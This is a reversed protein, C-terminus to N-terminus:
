HKNLPSSLDAAAVGNLVIEWFYEVTMDTAVRWNAVKGSQGWVDCITQGASLESNTEIDVRM